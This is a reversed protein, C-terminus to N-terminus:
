VVEPIKPSCNSCNRLSQMYGQTVLLSLPEVIRQTGNLNLMKVIDAKKAATLEDAHATSLMIAALFSFLLVIAIKM